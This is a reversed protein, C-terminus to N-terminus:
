DKENIKEMGAHREALIEEAEIYAGLENISKILKCTADHKIEERPNAWHECSPCKNHAWYRDGDSFFGDVRVQTVLKLTDLVSKLIQVNSKVDDATSNTM